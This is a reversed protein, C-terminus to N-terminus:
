KYSFKLCILSDNYSEFNTPNFLEKYWQFTKLVYINLIPEYSGDLCKFCLNHSFSLDIILMIEKRALPMGCVM